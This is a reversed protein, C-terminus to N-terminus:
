GPLLFRRNVLLLARGLARAIALPLGYWRLVGINHCIAIARTFTAGLQVPPIDAILTDNWDIM